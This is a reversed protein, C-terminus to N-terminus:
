TVLYDDAGANIGDLLQSKNDLLTLFIFYTYRTRPLSRVRTCFEIGDLGPMLRDRIIVDVENEQFLDWARIGNDAEFVQHGAKQVTTKLILRSVSDDEAILVRM